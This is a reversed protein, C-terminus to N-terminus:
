FCNTSRATLGPLRVRSRWDLRSSNALALDLWYVPVNETRESLQAAFGAQVVQDRRKRANAPDKFLGLSITNPQGGSGVVFYDDIGSASLKKAQALALERSRQAPLYVWWGRSQVSQEQRTRQRTAQAQLAVGASRLDAQTAFPGLAVCTASRPAPAVPAAVAPAIATAAPALATSVAAVTTAASPAPAPLESLLRLTPVGRDRDGGGGRVPAAHQGWWWWGAAALNFAVLMVLLLRLLM